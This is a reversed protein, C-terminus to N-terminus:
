VHHSVLELFKEESIVKVGLREAEALKSGPNEGAVVIDTTRSVSSTARGGLRKVLRQAESRGLRSLAGTFVVKVGKLIDAVELKEQEVNVGREILESVLQSNKENAFFEVVRQAVEPGIENIEILNDIGAQALQHISDFQRALVDALHRGVHRIGLAFIFRSLSCAKSKKIAALMNQASKDAFGELASLDEQTLCYLDAVSGIIGEDVLRDVIKTGLGDIDMAQKSAYHKISEKLQAPCSLGARCMHHAGEKIVVSGCAPCSDPMIFDREDGTRAQEDVEVVAPIVDGAREVKVWDGIKVGLGRIYDINHLTARSITVGGVDVPRLLAVPTLAGTRGVQVVIDDLRTEGKRPEFKYAVAWRPSRSKVGAKDRGALKNLKIVVGDIEYDLEDREQELKHHFEVAEEIYRCKRVLPNVKLGWEPLAHLIESHETFRDGGEQMLIDYIFIDLPRSATVTSDLQRMSGAAANRPNAFMPQNSEALQKNLREFGQISMMVEGRVALLHPLGGGGGGGGGGRGQRLTLPLAKITKLNLTIDEGRYGDGRTAGRILRGDEYVVEVSLGDLKPEAMYEVQEADLLKKVRKDFEIVAEPTLESDLSLMPATHEINAFEAAPPAGVRQSPSDPTILEPHAVELALLERMLKDYQEDSVQPQAKVYYLYNHQRIKERLREIREKIQVMNLKNLERKLTFKWGLIDSKM